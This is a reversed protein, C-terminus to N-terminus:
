LKKVGCVEYKMDKKKVDFFCTIQVEDYDELNNEEILEIPVVYSEKVIGKNDRINLVGEVVDHHITVFNKTITYGYTLKNNEIDKNEKVINKYTIFVDLLSLILSRYKYKSISKGTLHSGQQTVRLVSMLDNLTTLDFPSRKIELRLQEARKEGVIYNTIRTKKGMLFYITPNLHIQTEIFEDPIFGFKNLSLFMTEILKRIPTVFNSYSIDSCSNEVVQLVEILLDISSEQFINESFLEFVDQYKYKIKGIDTKKIEEIIYQYLQEENGKEFYVEDVLVESSDEVFGTNIVIPKYGYKVQMAALDRLAYLLHKIDESKSKDHLRGKGDLIIADYKNWKEKLEESASKWNGFHVLDIGLDYAYDFQSNVYDENDDSILVKYM